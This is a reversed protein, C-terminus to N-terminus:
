MELIVVYGYIGPVHAVVVDMAFVKDLYMSLCVQLDKVLGYVEM